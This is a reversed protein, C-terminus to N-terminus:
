MLPPLVPRDWSSGTPLAMKISCESFDDKLALLKEQGQQCYCGRCPAYRERRIQILEPKSERKKWNELVLRM